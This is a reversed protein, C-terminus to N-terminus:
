SSMKALYDLTRIVSEQITLTPKWGLSRLRTCDLYIYPSDGVWGRKGGSYRVEPNVDMYEAIWRISNDVTSAGDIGVNFINVDADAKDIVTLMAEVVDGVYVYSKRQKGDGLVDLYDPHEKLQSYFDIVHGHHYGEGLVSVLRLIYAQIGYAQGYAQILGEGALKSAGYLSTQVPFPADEPTPICKPEGYVSGSSTFVIRKIDSRRMGELVAWTGITNEGLDTHPQEPGSRVDAHAALHFIVDCDLTSCNSLNLIDEAYSKARDWTSVIHGERKLRSVLNRGIFGESGTVLTRM